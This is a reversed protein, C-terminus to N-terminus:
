WFLLGRRCQNNRECCTLDMDELYIEIAREIIQRLSCDIITTVPDTFVHAEFFDFEMCKNEVCRIRAVDFVASPLKCPSIFLEFECEGIRELNVKYRCGNVEIERIERRGRENIESFDDRTIGGREIFENKM